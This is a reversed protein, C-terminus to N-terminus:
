APARPNRRPLSRQERAASSSVQMFKWQLYRGVQQLGARVEHLQRECMDGREELRLLQKRLDRVSIPALDDDQRSRKPTTKRRTM